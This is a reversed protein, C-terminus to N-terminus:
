RKGLIKEVSRLGMYGCLSYQILDWVRVPIIMPQVDPYGPLFANHVTAYIVLAVLSLVALPRWNRQLWSEGKAEALITQMQADLETMDKRHLMEALKARVDAWKGVLSTVPGVLSTFLNLIWM